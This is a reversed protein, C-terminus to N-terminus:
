VQVGKVEEEPGGRVEIKGDSYEEPAPIPPVWLDDPKRWMWLLRGQNVFYQWDYGKDQYVQWVIACMREPTLYNDLIDKATIAGIGKCGTINDTPDGSLLQRYFNLDAEEDTVYYYSDKDYNYHWGPTNDLDKDITVIVNTIPNQMTMYSVADDVECNDVEVAKWAKKLYNRIEEEQIPKSNKDRNGKYNPDIDYRFNNKGSIFTQFTSCREQSTIKDMISKINALSHSVPGAEKTFEIELLEDEGVYAKADAKYQFEAVVFDNELVLYKRTENACGAKYIASDADILFNIISDEQSTSM